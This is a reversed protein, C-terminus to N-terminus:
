QKKGSSLESKKYAVVMLYIGGLVMPLSLLQGRTIWGFFDFGIHPDPERFFESFIRICGYGILFMGSVAKLPRQKSSYIYLVAFFVVGELFCQYLASPHRTAGTPDMPYVMGWPLDTVRGPLEQNIFNGLRGFGLGLPILPAVFDTMEWFGRQQKVAFLWMALFVGLMGGHFSMGGEWVKFMWLPNEVFAPFNYFLVSGIRGGLVVGFAAYLIFDEMKEAPVPVWPLHSRRMGLIYAAIFGFLYMLGYWHIKLPGLSLLVPDIEPYPM